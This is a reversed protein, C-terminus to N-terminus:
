QYDTTHYRRFEFPICVLFGRIKVFVTHSKRLGRSKLVRERDLPDIRALVIAFLSDNQKAHRDALHQGDNVRFPVLM